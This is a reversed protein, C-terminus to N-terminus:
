LVFRVLASFFMILLWAAAARSSPARTLLPGYVAAVAYWSFGVIALVLLIMVNGLLKLFKCYQFVNLFRAAAQLVASM